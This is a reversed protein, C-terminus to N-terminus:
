SFGAGAILGLFLLVLLSIGLGTWLSGKEAKSRKTLYVIAISTIIFLIFASIGLFAGVLPSLLGIIFWLFSFKGKEIDEAKIYGDVTMDNHKKLYHKMKRQIMKFAIKELFNMKNGTLKQFDKSGKKVFDRLKFHYQWETSVPKASPVSVSAASLSLQSASVFLIMACIMIKKM